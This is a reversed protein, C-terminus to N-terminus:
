KWVLLFLVAVGSDAFSFTFDATESTRSVTVSWAERCHEALWALAGTFWAEFQLDPFWEIGEGRRRPVSVAHPQPNRCFAAFRGENLAVENSTLRCLRYEQMIRNSANHIACCLYAADHPITLIFLDSGM